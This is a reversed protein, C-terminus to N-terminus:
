KILNMLDRVHKINIIELDKINIQKKNYPIIARNFGLKKAENLRHEPNTVNRVEGSLGVEGFFITKNGIAKNYLASILAACAALDAAPENIKLGGAVNFYVELQSFNINVRSSLVALIIALRNQDWGIVARRPLAMHSKTVLAQLELLITRSGEILPFIATGSIDENYEQLFIESPNTIEKLGSKLMEFIALENTAGYRNKYAKLIRYNNDKEGEFYLVTDVMHEVLKPGAIQGDKTVHGILFFTIDLSKALDVFELTSNRLQTTSGPANSLGNVYTTQISDIVVFKLDPNQRIHNAIATVETNTSIKINQNTIDLRKARLKIQNVSEEGSFYITSIEQQEIKELIQLILTSKGIGPDGGILIVSGPVIGGGLLHDFESIKSSIRHTEDLDEGLTSVNIATPDLNIKEKNFNAIKFEAKHEIITDWSNCITCQGSWKLFVNNCNTCKYQSKFKAM